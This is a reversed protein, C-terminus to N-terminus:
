TESDNKKVKIFSKRGYQDYRTVYEYGFDDSAKKKEYDSIVKRIKELSVPYDLKKYIEEASLGNDYLHRVADGYAYNNVMSSLAQGFYKNDM